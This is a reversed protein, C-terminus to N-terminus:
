DSSHLAMKAAASFCSVLHYLLIGHLLSIGDPSHLGVKAAASFFSVTLYM